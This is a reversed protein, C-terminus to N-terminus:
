YYINSKAPLGKKKKKSPEATQTTRDAQAALDMTPQSFIGNRFLLPLSRFPKKIKDQIGNVFFFFFLRSSSFSFAHGSFADPIYPLQFKTQTISGTHLREISHLWLFKVGKQNKTVILTKKSVRKVCKKLLEM